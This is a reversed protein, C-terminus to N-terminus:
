RTHPEISLRDCKIKLNFALSLSLTCPILSSLAMLMLRFCLYDHHQVCKLNIATSPKRSELINTEREVATFAIELVQFLNWLSRSHAWKLKVSGSVNERSQQETIHQSDLQFSIKEFIKWSQQQRKERGNSTTSPLIIRNFTETVSSSKREPALIHFDKEGQKRRSSNFIKWKNENKKRRKQKRTKRQFPMTLRTLFVLFFEYLHQKILWSFLIITQRGESVKM